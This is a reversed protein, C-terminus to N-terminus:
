NSPDYILKVGNTFLLHIDGTEADSTMMMKGADIQGPPGNGTIAGGSEAAIERMRTTLLETEIRYGTSSTLVVDGQLIALGALDEVTGTDSTINILGGDVMDIQAAMTQAIVRDSQDPDLSANTAVFAVLHGEDTKGAFSPGSIQQSGTRSELDARSTPISNTPDLTRSLLFVTSLLALAALPLLIKLWNIVRSRLDDRQAM